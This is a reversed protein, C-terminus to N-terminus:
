APDSQSYRQKDGRRFRSLSSSLTVMIGMYLRQELQPYLYENLGETPSIPIKQGYQPADKMTEATFLSISTIKPYDV